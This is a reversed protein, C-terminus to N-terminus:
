NQKTQRSQEIKKENHKKQATSTIPKIQNMTGTEIITQLSTIAYKNPKKKPRVGSILSLGFFVHSPNMPPPNAVTM